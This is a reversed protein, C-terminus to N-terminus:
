KKRILRGNQDRKGEFAITCRCNITFAAPATPDGPQMASATKGTKGIQYFPEDMERRQGDLIWHDFEDKKAFTRTRNDRAAIWEKVVFFKHADAGKMHGINQARMTETRAIREAWYDTRAEKLALLINNTVTFISQGEEVGLQIQKNIITLIQERMNGTVTSVLQLGYTALWENVEQTWQANYGFNKDITTRLRRYQFNAFRIVTERYLKGYETLLDQYWLEVTGITQERSYIDIIQRLKQDLIFKFRRSYKQELQRQM